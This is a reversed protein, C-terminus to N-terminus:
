RAPPPSPLRIVFTTGKGAPGDTVSITGGHADVIKKAIALGLGTGSGKGHTVFPQFIRTRIEKPVGPGTDTFTIEVSDGVRRAAIRFTGRGGMAERANNTINLCARLLKNRNIPLPDDFQIDTELRIGSLKFDREVLRLLEVFFAGLSYPRVTLDDDGGRAYELLEGIMGSLRETEACIIDAQDCVEPAREAVLQAYGSIISLPNRMDHAITSAFKGVLAHKEQRRAEESLLANELCVAAYSGFSGLAREDSGDFPRGDKRNLVQLVGVLEKKLNLLPVCLITRTEYGTKKDIARASRSDTRADAINVPQLTQAAIGAAGQGVSLRIEAIELETAIKSWVEKAAPNHIYLTARDANVLPLVAHTVVALLEEMDRAASMQRGLDLVQELKHREVGPEAAGAVPPSISEPMQSM